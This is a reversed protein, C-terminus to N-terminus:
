GQNGFQPLHELIEVGTPLVQSRQETAAQLKAFSFKLSTQTKAKVRSVQCFCLDIEQSSPIFHEGWTVHTSWWFLIESFILGRPSYPPPLPDAQSLFVAGSESGRGFFELLAMFVWWDWPTDCPSFKRKRHCINGPKNFILSTSQLPSDHLCLSCWFAQNRRNKTQVVMVRQGKDFLSM